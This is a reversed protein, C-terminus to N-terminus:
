GHDVVLVHSARWGLLVRGYVVLHQDPKEYM